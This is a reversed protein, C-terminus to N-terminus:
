KEIKVESGNGDPVICGALMEWSIEMAQKEAEETFGHGEEPFVRLSAAPYLGAARESYSLPVIGDKGGHMILVPGSFRGIRSFTDLGRLSTFFHKGLAMGMFDVKEPIDEEKQFREAWNDEICLAPYLLFLGRLRKGLGDAALASVLGGQSEGFLFLRDTDTREWGAVADFVTELDQKETFVTMDTTAMSSKSYVSGGCFDYRVSGAGREAFYEAYRRFSDATGNYGHSFIVMPVKGNGAPMAVTGYIERGYGCIRIERETIKGNKEMIKGKVARGSKRGAM